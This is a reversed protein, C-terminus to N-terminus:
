LIKKSYLKNWVSYEFKRQALFQMCADLKNYTDVKYKPKKFNFKEYPKGERVKKYACIALQADNRSLCDYLNQLHYPSVIDDSDLFALYEGCANDIGINRASSVGVGETHIIKYNPHNKSYEHLLTLSNDTSGDDVVIFEVNDYTQKDLSKLTEIVFKESNHCPMIVSILPNCKM